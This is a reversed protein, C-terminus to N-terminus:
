GFQKKKKKTAMVKLYMPTQSLFTKRTSVIQLSCSALIQKIGVSLNVGFFRSLIKVCVHCVAAFTFLV